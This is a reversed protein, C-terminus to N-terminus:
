KKAIEVAGLFRAAKAMALGLFAFLFYVLVAQYTNITVAWDPYFVGVLIALFLSIFGIGILALFFKAITAIGKGGDAWFETLLAMILPIYWM